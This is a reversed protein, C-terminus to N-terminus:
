FDNDLEVIDDFRIKDKVIQIWGMQPNIKAVMGTKKIYENEHYYVVTLMTGPQVSQMLLDLEEKKDESLTIKPVTVHRKTELAEKFGKLADFPMFLKAREEITMPYKPRQPM